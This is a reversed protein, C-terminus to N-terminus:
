ARQWDCSNFYCNGMNFLLISSVEVMKECQLQTAGYFQNPDLVQLGSTYKQIAKAFDQNKFEFNGEAKLANAKELREDFVNVQVPTKEVDKSELEM